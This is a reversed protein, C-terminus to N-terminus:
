NFGVHDKAIEEIGDFLQRDVVIADTFPNIVIGRVEIEHNRAFQIARLFSEEMKSVEKKYDGMEEISSFVPFFYGDENQIIVPSLTIHDQVNLEKGISSDLYGDAEEVVKAFYEHDEESMEMTCPIWVDSEKLLLLLDMFNEESPHECYLHLANTLLNNEAQNTM